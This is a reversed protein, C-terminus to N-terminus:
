ADARRPADRRANIRGVLWALSAAACVAPAITFCLLTGVSLVSPSIIVPATSCALVLIAGGAGSRIKAASPGTRQAGLWVIAGILVILGAGALNGPAMADKARFAAIQALCKNYLGEIVAFPHERIIKFVMERQLREYERNDRTSDLYIVGDQVFAIPSSTDHRANLDRSVSNYADADFFEVDHASGLYVHQLTPSAGLIGSLVEHWVSHYASETAYRPDANLSISAMHAALAVVAVGAAWTGNWLSDTREDPAARRRRTERLVIWAAAAVIMVIQWRATIRCDVLLALMASQAAAMALSHLAPPVRRWVLLFAHMAPLLSLAEFLRSNTLSAAQVGRSWVYNELFFVGALYGLLLFMCFASTRFEVVFLLCSIGLLLFYFYYLSSMHVGFLRFGLYIYDAYALENIRILQPPRDPDIPTNKAQELAREMRAPDGFLVTWGADDLHPGPDAPEIAFGNRSLADVVSGYALYGQLPPDRLRSIAIALSQRLRYIPQFGIDHEGLRIGHAFDLGFAAVILVIQLWRFAPTWDRQAPM